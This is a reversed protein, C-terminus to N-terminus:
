NTDNKEPRRPLLWQAERLRLEGIHFVPTVLGLESPYASSCVCIHISTYFVWMSDPVSVQTLCMLREGTSQKVEGVDLAM